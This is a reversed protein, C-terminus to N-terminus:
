KAFVQFSAINPWRNDPCREFLFLSKSVILCECLQCQGNVNHPCVACIGRRALKLEPSALMKRRRIVSWLFEGLFKIFNKVGVLTVKM